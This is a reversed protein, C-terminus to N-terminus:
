LTQNLQNIDVKPFFSNFNQTEITYTIILSRFREHARTVLEIWTGATLQKWNYNHSEDENWFYHNRDSLSNWRTDLIHHFLLM